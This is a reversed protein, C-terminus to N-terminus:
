TEEDVVREIPHVFEMDIAEPEISEESRADEPENCIERALHALRRRLAMDVDHDLVFTVVCSKQAVNSDRLPVVIKMVRHMNEQGAFVLAIVACIGLRRRLTQCFREAAAEDAFAAPRSRPKRGYKEHVEQLVVVM